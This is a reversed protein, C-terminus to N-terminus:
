HAAADNSEEVDALKVLLHNREDDAVPLRPLDRTAPGKTVRGDADFTSKHCRCLFSGDEQARVKCGKHTCVSSLAFVKKDRRIVFFGQERFGNGYVGDAKIDALPGADVVNGGAEAGADTAPAAPPADGAARARRGGCCATVAFAASALVFRRRDIDM